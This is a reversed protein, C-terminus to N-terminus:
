YCKNPRSLEIFIKSYVANVSETMESRMIRARVEFIWVTRSQGRTSFGISIIDTGQSLRNTASREGRLGQNSGPDTWTNNTTSLSTSFCSKRQTERNVGDIDNWQLDGHEYIM